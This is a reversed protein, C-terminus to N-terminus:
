GQPGIYKGLAAMAGANWHVMGNDLKCNVAYGHGDGLGPVQKICHQQGGLQRAM